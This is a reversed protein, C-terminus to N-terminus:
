QISVNAALRQQQALLTKQRLCIQERDSEIQQQLRGLTILEKNQEDLIREVTQKYYQSYQEIHEYIEAIMARSQTEISEQVGVKVSNFYADLEPRLKDWIQQQQDSLSPTALFSLGLGIAGGIITGLGPFLMTGVLAGSGVGGLVWNGSTEMLQSYTSQTETFEALHEFQLTAIAPIQVDLHSLSQLRQYIEVFRQDFTHSIQTASQTLQLLEINLEQSLKSYEQQFISKVESTTFNKL